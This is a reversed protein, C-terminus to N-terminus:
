GASFLVLDEEEDEKEEEDADEEEEEEEEEEENGESTSKVGFAGRISFKRALIAM